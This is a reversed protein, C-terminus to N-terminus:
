KSFSCLLALERSDPEAAGAAGAASAACFARATAVEIAASSSLGAGIPLDGQVIGEIPKLAYGAGQLAVAVGRIYNSWPQAPNHRVDDLDFEDWEGYNESWIRVPGSQVPRFFLRVERDVAMPMVFGGNYDTHEGILNVRGPARSCLLGERGGFDAEFRAVFQSVANRDM